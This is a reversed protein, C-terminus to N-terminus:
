QNLHLKIDTLHFLQPLILILSVKLERLKQHLTELQLHEKPAKLVCKEYRSCASVENALM